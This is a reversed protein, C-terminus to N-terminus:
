NKSSFQFPISINAHKFFKNRHYIWNQSFKQCMMQHKIFFFSAKWTNSTYCSGLKKEISSFLNRILINERWKPSFLPVGDYVEYKKYRWLLILFAKLLSTTVSINNKTFFLTKHCARIFALHNQIRIAWPQKCKLLSVSLMFSLLFLSKGKLRFEFIYFM